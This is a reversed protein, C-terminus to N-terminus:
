IGFLRNLIGGLTDLKECDTQKLVFSNRREAKIGKANARTHKAPKFGAIGPLPKGPKGGFWYFPGLEMTDKDFGMWIVCGSPKEALKGNITQRRTKAGNYAAKLQVHRLIGAVEMVLDYGCADVEARLIESDRHDKSWLHRLCDGIFIHALTNERVRSNISHYDPQEEWLHAHRTRAGKVMEDTVVESM